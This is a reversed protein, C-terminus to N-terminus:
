VDDRSRWGDRDRVITPGPRKRRFLKGVRPTTLLVPYRVCLFGFLFGGLHGLHATRGNADGVAMALALVGLLAVLHKLKMPVIGWIMVEENPQYLAVAMMTGYLVGSFGILLGANAGFLPSMAIHTLAAGVATIIVFQVFAARGYRFELMPGFYFFVLVNFFLHFVGGHLFAYTVLQWVMGHQVTHFLSAGFWLESDFFPRLFNQLLFVVVCTAILALTVPPVHASLTHKLDSFFDRVSM